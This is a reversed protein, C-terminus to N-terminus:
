GNRRDAEAVACRRAATNTKHRHPCDKKEWGLMVRGKFRDGDPVVSAKWKGVNTPRNGRIRVRATGLRPSM